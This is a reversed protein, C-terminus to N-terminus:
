VGQFLVPENLETPVAAVPVDNDCELALLDCFSLSFAGLMYRVDATDWGARAADDYVADTSDFQCTDSVSRVREATVSAM